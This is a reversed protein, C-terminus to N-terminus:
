VGDVAKPGSKTRCNGPTVRSSRQLSLEASERNPWGAPLSPEALLEEAQWVGLKGDHSASYLLSGDPSYQVCMVAARHAAVSGRFEGTAADFTHIQGFSDGAVVSRGDPSIAISTYTSGGNADAHRWLEQGSRADVCRVDPSHMTTIALSQGDPSLALGSVGPPASFRAIPQGDHTRWFAVSGSRNAAVVFHGDRSFEVYGRTDELSRALNVAHLVRGTDVDWIRVAGDGSVSAALSGDASFALSTAPREHGTPVFDRVGSSGEVRFVISGDTCGIALRRGDASLAVSKARRADLSPLRSGPLLEGTRLDRLELGSQFRCLAVTDATHAVAMGYIPFEPESNSAARSAVAGDQVLSRGDVLGVAALLSLLTVILLVVAGIEGLGIIGLAGYRGPPLTRTQSWRKM